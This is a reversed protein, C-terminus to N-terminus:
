QQEKTNIVTTEKINRPNAITKRINAKNNKM